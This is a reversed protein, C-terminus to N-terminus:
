YVAFLFMFIGSSLLGSITALLTSLTIFTYIWVVLNWTPSAFHKAEESLWQNTKHETTKTIVRQESFSQLQQRWGVLPALEKIAVQREEIQIIPLPHMLN